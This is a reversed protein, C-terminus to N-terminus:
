GTTPASGCGACASRSPRGAPASSSASGRCRPASASSTSGGRPGLAALDIVLAGLRMAVLNDVTVPSSLVRHEWGLRDLRKGLVQLFGTDGDILAVRLPGISSPPVARDTDAPASPRETM